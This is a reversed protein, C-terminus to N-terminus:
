LSRKRQDAVITPRYRERTPWPCSVRGSTSAKPHRREKRAREASSPTLQTCAAQNFDCDAV